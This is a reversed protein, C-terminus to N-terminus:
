TRVELFMPLIAPQNAIALKLNKTDNEVFVRLKGIQNLVDAIDDDTMGKRKLITELSTWGSNVDEAAAILSEITDSM